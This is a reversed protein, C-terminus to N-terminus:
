PDIVQDARVFLSPPITLGIAKAAKKNILLEVATPQAIPLESPDAGKLIKAVYSVAWRWQEILSTPAASPPRSEGLLLLPAWPGIPV